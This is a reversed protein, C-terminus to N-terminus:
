MSKFADPPLIPSITTFTSLPFDFSTAVFMRLFNLLLTMFAEVRILESCLTVAWTRYLLVASSCLKNSFILDMGYTVLKCHDSITSIIPSLLWETIVAKKLLELCAAKPPSWSHGFQSTWLMGIYSPHQEELVLKDMLMTAFPLGFADVFVLLSSSTSAIM